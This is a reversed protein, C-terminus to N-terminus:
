LTCNLQTCQSFLDQEHNIKISSLKIRQCTTDNDGISEYM